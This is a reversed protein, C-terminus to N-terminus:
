MAMEKAMQEVVNGGKASCMIASIQGDPGVEIPTPVTDSGCRRTRACLTYNHKGVGPVDTFMGIPYESSGVSASTVSQMGQEDSGLNKMVGQDTSRFLTFYAEYNLTAPNFNTNFVVLVKDHAGEVSVTVSLGSVETWKDEEIVATGECRCPGAVSGAPLRILALQRDDDDLRCVRAEGNPTTVAAKVKYLHAGPACNDVLAMVATRKVGKKLARISQLGYSEPDLPVDDRLITFRGRSLEDSWMATYKITCVVLVKENQNVASIVQLGPVDHWRGTEVAAVENSRGTTVQGGPIIIASLQRSENNKSLHVSGKMSCNVTYELELKAKEPEDLWPMLVNDIRDLEHTWNSFQPGVYYSGRKFTWRVGDENDTTSTPINAILLVKDNKESTKVVTQLSRVPTFGEAALTTIDSKHTMTTPNRMERFAVTFDAVALDRQYYEPPFETIIGQKSLHQTTEVNEGVAHGTGIDGHRGAGGTGSGALGTGQVEGWLNSQGCMSSTARRWSIMANMNGNACSYDSSRSLGIMSSSSSFVQFFQLGGAACNKRSDSGDEVGMAVGVVM